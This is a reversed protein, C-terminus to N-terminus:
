LQNGKSVHRRENTLDNCKKEELSLDNFGSLIKRQVAMVGPNAHSYQSTTLQFDSVVSQIQSCSWLLDFFVKQIDIM